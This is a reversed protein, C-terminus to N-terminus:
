PLHMYGSGSSARMLRSLWRDCVVLESLLHHACFALVLQILLFVFAVLSLPCFACDASDLQECHALVCLFAVYRFAINVMVCTVRCM